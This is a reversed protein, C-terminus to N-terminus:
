KKMNLTVNAKQPTRIHLNGLLLQVGAGNQFHHVVLEPDCQECSLKYTKSHDVAKVGHQTADADFGYVTLYNDNIIVSPAAVRPQHRFIKVDHGHIGAKPLGQRHGGVECFNMIHLGADQVCATIIDELKHVYQQAKKSKLMNQDIGANFSGIRLM